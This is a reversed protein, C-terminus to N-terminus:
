KNLIENLLQPPVYDYKNRKINKEMSNIKNLKVGSNNNKNIIRFSNYTNNYNSQNMINDFYKNIIYDKNKTNSRFKNMNKNVNKQFYSSYQFFPNLDKRNSYNIAQKNNININELYKNKFFSNNTNSNETNDKSYNNNYFSKIYNNNNNKNNILKKISDIEKNSTDIDIKINHFKDYKKKNMKKIYKKYIANNVIDTIQSNDESIENNKSEINKSINGSISDEINLIKKNLIIKKEPSSVKRFSSSNESLQSLHTSNYIKSLRKQFSNNTTQPKPNKKHFNLGHAEFIKEFEQIPEKFNIKELKEYKKKRENEDLSSDESVNPNKIIISMRSPNINRVTSLRKNIKKEQLDASARKKETSNFISLNLSFLNKDKKLEKYIFDDIEKMSNKIIETASREKGKIIFYDLMLNFSMPLYTNEEDKNEGEGELNNSKEKNYKEKIGRMFQRFDQEKNLAFQMFQFFDLYLNMIDKKKYKKNKFFLNILENIDAFIKNQNFMTFMEDIEMKRSGDEDFELFIEKLKLVKEFTKKDFFYKPNINVNKEKEIVPKMSDIFEKLERHKRDRESEDDPIVPKGNDPLLTNLSKELVSDSYKSRLWKITYFDHYKRSPKLSKIKKKREEPDIKQRLTFPLKPKTLNFINQSEIKKPKQFIKNIIELNKLYKKKIKLKENGKKSSNENSKSIKYLKHYKLHIEKELKSLKKLSKNYEYKNFNSLLMKNNKLSYLSKHNDM